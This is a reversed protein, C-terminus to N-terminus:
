ENVRGHKHRVICSWCVEYEVGTWTARCSPESCCLNGYRRRLRRLPYDANPTQFIGVGLPVDFPIGNDLYAYKLRLHKIEQSYHSDCLKEALLAHEAPLVCDPRSCPRQYDV